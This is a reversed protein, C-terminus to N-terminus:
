KHERSTSSQDRRPVGRLVVLLFLALSATGVLQGATLALFVPIPKPVAVSFVVLTLGLLGLVCAISVLRQPNM